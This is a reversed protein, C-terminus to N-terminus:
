FRYAVGVLAQHRDFKGNGDSLDTYRYEIRASINDTIAREVGGGVLWGDRDQSASTIGASDESTTRVRANTYGGRAYILTKADALVGARATLDIARKPDLTILATGNDHVVEDDVSFQIGAEAGLVFRDAIKYDYGIFGGANFSDKKQTVALVGADTTPNNLDDQNWGGQVGIFPGNFPEASAATGMSVALAAALTSVIYKM